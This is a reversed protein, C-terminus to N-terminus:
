LGHVTRTIIEDQLAGDLNVFFECYGGIRVILNRYKDPELKAKKLVEADVFNVQIQPGGDELYAAILGKLVNTGSRSRVLAPNIKLNLAYGGTVGGHDLKLVSNLMKTPGNVDKGQSPGMSDSFTEGKHRGNPTAGTIEGHYIHFFYGFLTSVYKDSQGKSNYALVMDDFQTLIDKALADVEDEDNGYHPMHTLMPRISDAGAFDLELLQALRDITLIKDEYVTKKVAVMSDAATGLGYAYFSWHTGLESGGQFMDKGTELCGDIMLSALPDYCKGPIDKRKEDAEDKDAQVAAKLEAHYAELFEDFTDLQYAGKQYNRFVGEFLMPFAIPDTIGWNPQKHPVMIEVCGMNYYDNAYTDAYGLKKLNAIWVEDSMIMPQGAGAKISDAVADILWPANKKNLRVGVNPYPLKMEKIVELLLATLGNAADEGDPTVGGITMSQVTRLRPENIKLWLCCLLEKADERTLRGSKLDRDYLEFMYQDFRGFSLASGWTVSAMIHLMWVFQIGERFSQAPRHSLAQCIDAMDPLEARRVPGEREAEAKLADEYRLFFNAAAKAVIGAALYYERREGEARSAKEGIDAILADFGTNMVRAYNLSLHNAAFWPLSDIERKVEAGYDIKFGRELERGIEYKELGPENAYRAQMEGIVKQLDAYSINADHHVRSMLAWRSKKKTFEDEFTKIKNRDQALETRETRKKVLYDEIISIAADRQEGYSPVDEEVPCYATMTGAFLEHPLVAIPAHELLYAQAKARRLQVPETRTSKLSEYALPYFYTRRVGAGNLQEVSKRMERIRANM